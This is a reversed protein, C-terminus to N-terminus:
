PRAIQQHLWILAWQQGQRYRLLGQEQGAAKLYQHNMAQAVQRITGTKIQRQQLRICELDSRLPKNLASSMSPQSAWFHLWAYYQLQRSSAQWMSVYAIFNAAAEDAFGNLHAYEHTLTFAQLLRPTHASISPQATMPNYVGAIGMKAFLASFLLYRGEGTAVVPLANQQLFANINERVMQDLQQFGISFEVCDQLSNVKKTQLSLDLALQNSSLVAFDIM